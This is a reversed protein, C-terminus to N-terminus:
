KDILTRPWDAPWGERQWDLEKKNKKTKVKQAYKNQTLSNLM